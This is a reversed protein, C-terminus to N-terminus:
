RLTEFTLHACTLWRHLDLVATIAHLHALVNHSLAHELQSDHIPKDEMSSLEKSNRFGATHLAWGLMVCNHKVGKDEHLQEVLYVVTELEPERTRRKM